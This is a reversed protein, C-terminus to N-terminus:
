DEVFIVFLFKGPLLTCLHWCVTHFVIDGFHVTFPPEALHILALHGSKQSWFFIYRVITLAYSLLFITTFALELILFYVYWVLVHVKLCGISQQRTDTEQFNSLLFLVIQKIM